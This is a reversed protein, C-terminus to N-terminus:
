KSQAVLEDLWLLIDENRGETQQLQRRVAHWEEMTGLVMELNRPTSGVLVSRAEQLVCDLHKRLEVDT